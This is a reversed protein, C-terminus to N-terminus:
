QSFVFYSFTRKETRYPTQACNVLRSLEDAGMEHGITESPAATAPAALERCDTSQRSPPRRPAATEPAAQERCDTSQRSPPRRPAATGPAALERCDTSQRSPPRRMGLPAATEPRSKIACMVARNAHQLSKRLGGDLAMAGLRRSVEIRRRIHAGSNM